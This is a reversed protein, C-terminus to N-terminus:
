GAVYLGHRAIYEAVSPAILGDISAGQAVRERIDTSSVDIADIELLRDAWAAPVAEAESRPLVVPDALAMLEEARKWGDFDAIQDQGILLRMATDEGLSSALHEITDIMYSRGGRDLELTSIEAWPQDQLACRLMALRHAADSTGADEKFPSCAAPVFLVRDHRLAALAALAARAHALHPPDFTGGFVLLRTM